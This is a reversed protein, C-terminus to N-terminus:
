SCCCHATFSYTTRDNCPGFSFPDVIYNREDRNCDHHPWIITYLFCGGDNEFQVSAYSSAWGFCKWTEYWNVDGGCGTWLSQYLWYGYTQRKNLSTDTTNTSWGQPVAGGAKKSADLNKRRIAQAEENSIEELARGSAGLSMADEFSVESLEKTTRRYRQDSPLAEVAASIGRFKILCQMLVSDDGSRDIAGPEKRVIVMLGSDEIYMTYRNAHEGLCAMFGDYDTKSLEKKVERRMPQACAAFGILCALLVSLLRLGHM